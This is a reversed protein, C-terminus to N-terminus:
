RERTILIPGVTHLHGLLARLAEATPGDRTVAEYVALAGSLFTDADTNPELLVGGTMGEDTSRLREELQDYVDGVSLATLVLDELVDPLSLDLREPAVPPRRLFTSASM